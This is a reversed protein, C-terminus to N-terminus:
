VIMHSSKDGERQVMENMRRLLDKRVIKTTYIYGHCIQLIKNTGYGEESRLSWNRTLELLPIDYIITHNIRLIHTTTIILPCFKISPAWHKSISFKPYLINSIHLSYIYILTQFNIKVLHDWSNSTYQSYEPLTTPCILWLWFLSKNKIIFKM